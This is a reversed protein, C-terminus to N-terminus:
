CISARGDRIKGHGKLALKFGVEELFGLKIM